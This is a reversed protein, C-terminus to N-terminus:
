ARKLHVHEDCQNELVLESYPSDNSFTSPAIKRASALHEIYERVSDMGIRRYLEALYRVLETREGEDLAGM